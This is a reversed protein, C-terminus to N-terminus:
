CEDYAAYRVHKEHFYKRVIDPRKQTSRMYCRLEGMMESQTGPHHQSFANAKVDQNVMEDPNLEPSYSPLNIVRIKEKHKELWKNVLAAHHVPHNDLILYIRRPCHRILRNLFTILVAAVFGGKFVMFAMEGRNAIASIMNCGFRRGTARMVPTEGKRAYSRGVADDSRIGTEDGWYIIANERKAEAKLRPYEEELWKAVAVPDQELARRMPKQPTFNWGRLWRGITWVSKKIKFRKEVLAGVAERTWLAYPLKIQDPCHDEISRVIQAAQWPLLASQKPRGQKKARLAKWGGDQYKKVWTDVSQRPVCFIEAVEVHTRGALVATVAKNRLDEQSQSSLTRADHKKM